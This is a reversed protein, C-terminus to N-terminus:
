SLNITAALSMDVDSDDDATTPLPCPLPPPSPPLSPTLPSLSSRHVGSAVMALGGGALRGGADADPSAHCALSLVLTVTAAPAVSFPGLTPERARGSGLKVWNM